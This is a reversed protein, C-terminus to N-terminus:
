KIVCSGLIQISFFNCGWKYVCQMAWVHMAHSHSTIIPFVGVTVEIQLGQSLAGRPSERCSLASSLLGARLPQLGKQKSLKMGNSLRM